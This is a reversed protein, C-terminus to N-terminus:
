GALRHNSDPTEGRIDTISVGPQIQSRMRAPPLTSAHRWQRYWAVLTQTAVSALVIAPIINTLWVISDSKMNFFAVAAAEAGTAALYLVLATKRYGFSFIAVCGVLDGLLVCTWITGRHHLLALELFSPAIYLISGTILWIGVLLGVLYRLNSDKAL